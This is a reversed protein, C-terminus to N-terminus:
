PTSITDLDDRRVEFHGWSGEDWGWYTYPSARHENLWAEATDLADVMEDSQELTLPPGANPNDASSALEKHALDLARAAIPAGIASAVLLARAPAYIGWWSDVYPGTEPALRDTM